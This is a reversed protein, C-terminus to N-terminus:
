RRSSASGAPWATVVGIGLLILVFILNLGLASAALPHPGLWGMLVVDTAGILAMTLNSLILPWALSVTARLEESWPSGITSTSRADM